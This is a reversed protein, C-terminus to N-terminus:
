HMMFLAAGLIGIGQYKMWKKGKKRTVELKEEDTMQPVKPKKPRSHLDERAHPHPHHRSVGSSSSSGAAVGGPRSAQQQARAASSSSSSPHPRKNASSSSSASAAPRRHDGKGLASKPTYPPIYAKKGPLQAPPPPDEGDPPAETCPVQKKEPVEGSPPVSSILILLALM